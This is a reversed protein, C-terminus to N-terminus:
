ASDSSLADQALEIYERGITDAENLGFIELLEGILRAKLQADESSWTRSKIELFWGPIQPQTVHDINIAMDAGKYNIRWRQRLKNVETEREPTFYERYFRLSRTAPAMFRTRYLLVSNPLAEVHTQGLLTLRSRSQQVNGKKDLMHDERFRFRAVDPDAQEFEFYSDFQQYTTQKTISFRGSILLEIIKDPSKLPVKVQTEYGEERAFSELAILKHYPSSERRVVFADIRSGVEAADAMAKEEDITLLQRNQMLWRGHVMVNVVDTSKASYVLRSYVSDPNTSFHPLNHVNNTDVTILDALKGVELSGVKDGMHIAKAGGITALELAQKAPLDTPDHRMVKALLAALRVEEFMDLDNNSAPGDTGIGVNCGVELMEPVPAIGSSLKLNSSPNHAIGAGVQKLEIMEGRDIHCCHAALLKTKLLNNQKNWHVPTTGNQERCNNVELLTESIHTHVPVDYELALDACAQLLEPTATYWAHPSVAPQILHHGNWNEIFQRCFKIGDQWTQSDPTPFMLVTQGCLARMGIDATTQAIADEFYYMDAFATIGSRIMEACALTTGLSVFEPNVFERELPMMYGLWVDLRLDDNLGRLLTMPVHTHANVLGPMVIQDRCDITADATFQAEVDAKSGVAVIKEQAVAIIGDNILDFNANMTVITGAHIFTDVPQTM